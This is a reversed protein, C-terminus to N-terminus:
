NDEFIGQIQDETSKLKTKCFKILESARKVKEALLDIDAEQSQLATLIEELELIAEKYSVKKKM